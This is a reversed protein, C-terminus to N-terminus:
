ENVKNVEPAFLRVKTTENFGDFVGLDGEILSAADVFFVLDFKKVNFGM